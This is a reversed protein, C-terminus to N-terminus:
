LVLTLSSTSLIWHSLNQPIFKSNEEKLSIHNIKVEIKDVTLWDTKRDKQTIFRLGVTEAAGTQMINADAGKTDTNTLRDCAVQGYPEHQRNQSIGQTKTDLIHQRSNTWDDVRRKHKEWEGTYKEDLDRQQGLPMISWTFINKWIFM